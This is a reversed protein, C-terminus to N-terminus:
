KQPVGRKFYRLDPPEQEKKAPMLNGDGSLYYVEKGIGVYNNGEECVNEVWDRDEPERRFTKQVTWPQTFADDITTIDAHFLTKDGKDRYLREKVVTANDEHLPLGSQDM